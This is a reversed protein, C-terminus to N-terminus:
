WSLTRFVPQVGGIRLLGAAPELDKQAVSGADALGEAHQTFADAAALAALIDDDADDLGVAAFGGGLQGGLELMDRRALHVVLASEEGLHVDIGDEGTRRLHRKDVLQRVGVDFAAAEGFAISSTSSSSSAFISTRLVMLTCCMSLRVGRMWLRVPMVTRSVTGSQTSSRASSITMLSRVGSASAVRMLRPSM